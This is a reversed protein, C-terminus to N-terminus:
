KYLNGKNEYYAKFDEPYMSQASAKLQDSFKKFIEKKGKKEIMDECLGVYRKM